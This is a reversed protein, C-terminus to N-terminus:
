GTSCTSHIASGESAFFFCTSRIFEVAAEFSEEQGVLEPYNLTEFPAM